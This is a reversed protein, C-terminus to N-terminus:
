TNINKIERKLYLSLILSFSTKFKSELKTIFGFNPTLPL